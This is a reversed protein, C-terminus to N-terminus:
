NEKIEKDAKFGDKLLSVALLCCGAVIACDAINFVPFSKWFAFQIFDVVSGGRFIRDVMNGVGGSLVLCAAAFLLKNGNIRKIMWWIVAAMVVVTIVVLLWTKGSLVGWAGGTNRIYCFDFIRPILTGTDYLSYNAAVFAKSLQDAALLIVACVVSIIYAM